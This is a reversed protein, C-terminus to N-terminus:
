KDKSKDRSMYDDLWIKYFNYDEPSLEKKKQELKQKYEIQRQIARMHQEDTMTSINEFFDVEKEPKRSEELIRRNEKKIDSYPEDIEEDDPDSPRTRPKAEKGKKTPGFKKLPKNWDRSTLGQDVMAEVLERDSYGEDVLEQYREGLTKRNERKDRANMHAVTLSKGTDSLDLDKDVIAEIIARDSVGQKRNWNVREGFTEENPYLAKELKKKAISFRAPSRFLSDPTPIGTEKSLRKRANTSAESFPLYFDERKYGEDELSEQVEVGIDQLSKGYYGKTDFKETVKRDYIDKLTPEAM